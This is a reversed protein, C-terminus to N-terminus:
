RTAGGTGEGQTSPRGMLEAIELLARLDSPLLEGVVEMAAEARVAAQKDDVQIAWRRVETAASIAAAYWNRINEARMEQVRTDGGFGDSIRANRYLIFREVAGAMQRMADALNQQYYCRKMLQKEEMQEDVDM